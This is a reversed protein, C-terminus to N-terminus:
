QPNNRRDQMEPLHENKLAIAQEHTNTANTASNILAVFDEIWKDPTTVTMTTGSAITQDSRSEPLQFRNVTRYRTKRKVLRFVFGFM